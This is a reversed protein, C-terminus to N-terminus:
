AERRRARELRALEVAVRVEVEEAIAALRPDAAKEGERALTALAALRSESLRGSLLGLQLAGLEDLMAEARKRARADREAAELSEQIALLSPAISVSEVAAAERSEEAGSELAVRFRGGSASRGVSRLQPLPPAGLGVIKVM